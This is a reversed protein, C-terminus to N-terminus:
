EEAVWGREATATVWGVPQGGQDAVQLVIEVPQGAEWRDTLHSDVCSKLDLAPDDPHVARVNLGWARRPTPVLGPFCTAGPALLTPVGAEHVLLDGPALETLGWRNLEAGPLAAELLWPLVLQLWATYGGLGALGIGLLPGAVRGRPQAEPRRPPEPGPAPPPRRPGEAEVARVREAAARVSEVAGQWFESARVGAADLVQARQGVQVDKLWTEQWDCAELLVVIVPMGQHWAARAHNGEIEACWVSALFRQSVLCVFIECGDLEARLQSEWRRGVELLRDDFVEVLGDRKAVALATQLAARHADDATTYSLFVKAPRM